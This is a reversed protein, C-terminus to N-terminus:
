FVVPVAAFKLPVGASGLPVVAVVWVVVASVEVSRAVSAKTCLAIVAAPTIGTPERGCCTCHPHCAPDDTPDEVTSYPGNGNAIAVDM